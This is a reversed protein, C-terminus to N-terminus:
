HQCTPVTADALVTPVLSMGELAKQQINSFRSELHSILKDLFPITLIRRYYVEPTDGPMNSRATQVSCRRPLQPEPARGKRGLNLTTECWTKHKVDIHERVDRLTAVVTNVERYAQYIDIARKQLAVSVRQTNCVNRQSWM